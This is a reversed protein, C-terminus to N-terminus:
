CARCPEGKATTAVAPVYEVVHQLNVETLPASYAGAEPASIWKAPEILQM